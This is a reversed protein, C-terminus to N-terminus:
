GGSSSKLAAVIRVSREIEYATRAIRELRSVSKAITEDDPNHLAAAAAQRWSAWQTPVLGPAELYFFDM